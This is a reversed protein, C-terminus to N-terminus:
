TRAIVKRGHNRYLHWKLLLVYPLASDFLPNITCDRKDYTMLQSSSISFFAAAIHKLTRSAVVSFSNYRTVGTLFTVIKFM